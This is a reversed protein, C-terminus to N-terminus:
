NKKEFGLCTHFLVRGRVPEDARNTESYYLLLRTSSDLAELSLFGRTPM